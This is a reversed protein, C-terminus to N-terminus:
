GATTSERRRQVLYSSWGLLGAGVAGGLLAWPLLPNGGGSEEDEPTQLTDRRIVPPPMPDGTASEQNGAAASSLVTSSRGSSSRGSSGSSSSSSGSSTSGSDDSDPDPVFPPADVRGFAVDDIYIIASTEDRPRMLIRLKATQAGPPAQIPGTTLPRFGPQPDALETTSDVSNLASGSGDTSLYWSVRLLVGEVWDHDHHVFADFQYWAESDVAVTQYVWKTSSSASFFAGAYAGSRVYTDTLTLTGGYSDWALPVGGEGAEFGTNAPWSLLPTPASTQDEDTPPETPPPPSTAVPAPHPTDTAEPEPTPTQTPVGPASTATAAPPSGIPTPTEILPPPTASPPAPLPTPPPPAVAKRFSVDDIYVVANTADVPRMVVRVRASRAGPPAMVAGTTLERFLADHELLEETSDIQAMASGSGDDSAYWSIRLLVSDVWPDNHHVFAAFDYWNAADVPVTQYAWKTSSTASFFAGSWEGSRAHADSRMLLGGVTDWGDPVGDTASEFGGNTFDLAAPESHTSTPEPTDTPPVPTNTRTPTATAEPTDTETPSITSSPTSTADAPETQSATPTITSSATATVSASPLPTHTATHTATATASPSASPTATSSPTQTITPTGTPCPTDPPSSKLSLNDIYAIDDLDGNVHVILEARVAECPAGGTVSMTGPAFQPASSLEQLVTTEGFYRISLRVSSVDGTDSVYEGRFGHDGANQLDFSHRIQTGFQSTVTVAGASSGGAGQGAAINLDAGVSNWDDLDSENEFDWVIPSDDAGSRSHVVFVALLITLLTLPLVTFAARATM